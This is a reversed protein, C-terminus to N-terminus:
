RPIFFYTVFFYDRMTRTEEPNIIVFVILSIISRSYSTKFAYPM